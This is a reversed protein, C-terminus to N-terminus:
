KPNTNHSGYNAEGAHLCVLGADLYSKIGIEAARKCFSVDEGIGVKIPTFYGYWKSEDAPKCEPWRGNDIEKRMAEIVWRQIRILGTGVWMMPVLGNYKGERLDKEQGLHNLFGWECQARGADHRGFYLAGVIGKDEGHSMLRSFAHQGALSAPMKSKFLGNFHDPYGFPLIMDDDVMAYKKVEPMKNYANDVMRNRAEWICTGKLPKPMAIKQPGYHAYNAFLTFHTDPNMTKYCPMLLAVERGDWMTKEKSEKPLIDPLDSLTLEVADVSPSTKGTAWNSVTGISVGYFKAAEKVGLSEIKDRVKGKLDLGM